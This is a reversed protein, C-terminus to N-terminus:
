IRPETERWTDAKMVQQTTLLLRPYLRSPYPRVCSKDKKPDHTQKLREKTTEGAICLDVHFCCLITVFLTVICTAVLLGVVIWKVIDADIVSTQNNPDYFLYLFLGSIVSLGEFVTSLIFTFFYRYNRKGICNNLFPCHHDFVEVCNGCTNCHHANPPRFIRCTSCHKYQAGREIDKTLVEVTFEDPVPGELEYVCKRPIIGPEVCMCLGMSVVACVFLLVNAVPLGVNVDRWLYPMVFVFYAFSLGVLLGATLLTLKMEVCPGLMLRGHFLFRNNGPWVQWLRRNSLTVEPNPPFPRLNQTIVSESVDACPSLQLQIQRPSQGDQQRKM